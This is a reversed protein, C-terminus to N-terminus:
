LVHNLCTYMVWCLPILGCLVLIMILIYPQWTLNHCFFSIWFMSWIFMTHFLYFGLHIVICVLWVLPLFMNPVLKSRFGLWPMFLFCALPFGLWRRVMWEFMNELHILKSMIHFYDLKFMNLVVILVQFLTSHDYLCEVVLFFLLHVM